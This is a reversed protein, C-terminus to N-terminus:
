SLNDRERPPPLNLRAAAVIQQSKPVNKNKGAVFTRFSFENCSCFCGATDLLSLAEVQTQSCFHVSGALSLAPPMLNKKLAASILPLQARMSHCIGILSRSVKCNTLTCRPRTALWLPLSMKCLPVRKVMLVVKM